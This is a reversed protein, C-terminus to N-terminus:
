LILLQGLGDWWSKMEMYSSLTVYRLGLEPEREDAWNAVEICEIVEGLKMKRRGQCLLKAENLTPKSGSPLFASAGYKLIAGRGRVKPLDRGWSGRYPTGPLWERPSIMPTDQRAPHRARSTTIGPARPFGWSKFFLVRNLM